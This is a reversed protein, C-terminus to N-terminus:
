EANDSIKKQLFEEVYPLNDKGRLNKETGLELAKKYYNIKHEIIELSKKLEDIKNQVSNKQNLFLELRKQLTSDGELTWESFKKIEEISLGTKKLCEVIQLSALDLETFNRHGSSKRQLFPLLNNKDYFRLTTAPIKTMKSVEKITYEM